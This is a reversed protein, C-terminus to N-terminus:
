DESNFNFFFLVDFAVVNENMRLIDRTVSFIWVIVMPLYVPRYRIFFLFKSAQDLDLIFDLFFVITWISFLLLLLLLLFGNVAM